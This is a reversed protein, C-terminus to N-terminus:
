SVLDIVFQRYWYKARQRCRDGNFRPEFFHESVTVVDRFFPAFGLMLFKHQCVNNAPFIFGLYRGLLAAAVNGFQLCEGIRDFLDFAKADAAIHQVKLTREIRAQHRDKGITIRQLDISIMRFMLLDGCEALLDGFANNGNVKDFILM